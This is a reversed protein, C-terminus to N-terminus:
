AVDYHRYLITLLSYHLDYHLGTHLCHILSYPQGYYLLVYLSNFLSNKQTYCLGDYSRNHHCDMQGTNGEICGILSAVMNTM